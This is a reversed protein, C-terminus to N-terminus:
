FLTSVVRKKLLKRAQSGSYFPGFITYGTKKLFEIMQLAILGEDDVIKITENHIITSM